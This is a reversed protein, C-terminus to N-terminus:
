NRWSLICEPISICQFPYTEEDIGTAKIVKVIYMRGIVPEYTSSCGCVEGYGTVAHYDFDVVDGQEYKYDNKM